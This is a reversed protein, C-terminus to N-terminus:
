AIFFLAITFSLGMLWVLSRLRAKDAIYLIGYIIRFGVVFLSILDITTQPAHNYSAVLVAAAFLPFAEFSNNQAWNARKPWGELKALFERPKHNADQNFGKSGFKAIGAFVIPMLGMILICFFAISM